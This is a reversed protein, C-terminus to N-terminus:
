PSSFFLLEEEEQKSLKENAKTWEELEQPTMPKYVAEEDRFEIELDALRCKKIGQTKVYEIFEKIQDIDKFM